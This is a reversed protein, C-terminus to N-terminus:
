ILQALLDNVSEPVKKKKLRLRPYLTRENQTSPPCEQIKNTKLFEQIHGEVEEHSPKPAAQLQKKQM